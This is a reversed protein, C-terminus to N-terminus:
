TSVHVAVVDYNQTIVFQGSSLTLLHHIISRLSLRHKHTTRYIRKWKLAVIFLWYFSFWIEALFLGIWATWRVGLDAELENTGLLVAPILRVRYVLIFCIGAFISAAFLRFPILGKGSKTEFIPLHEDSRAMRM